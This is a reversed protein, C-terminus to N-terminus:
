RWRRKVEHVSKIIGLYNLLYIWLQHHWPISPLSELTGEENTQVYWKDGVYVIQGIM